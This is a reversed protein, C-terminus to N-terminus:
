LVGSFGVNIATHIIKCKCCCPLKTAVLFVNCLIVDADVDADDDDDSNNCCSITHM